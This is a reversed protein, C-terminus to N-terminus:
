SANLLDLGTLMFGSSIIIVASTSSVAPSQRTYPNRGSKQTESLILRLFTSSNHYKSSSFQLSIILMQQFVGSNSYEVVTVLFRSKM